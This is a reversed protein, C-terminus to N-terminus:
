ILHQKEQGSTVAIGMDVVGLVVGWTMALSVICLALFM